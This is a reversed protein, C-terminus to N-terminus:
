QEWTVSGEWRGPSGTDDEWHIVLHLPSRLARSKVSTMMWEHTSGPGLVFKAWDIAGQLTLISDELRENEAYIQLNRASSGGENVIVLYPIMFPFSSNPARNHTVVHASLRARTEATVNREERATELDLMSKSLRTQERQMETQDAQQRSQEAQLRNQRQWTFYTFILAVLAVGASLPDM